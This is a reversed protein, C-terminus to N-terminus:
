ELEKESMSCALSVPASRKNPYAEALKPYVTSVMGVNLMSQMNFGSVLEYLDFFSSSEGGAHYLPYLLNNGIAEHFEVWMGKQEKSESPPARNPRQQNTAIAEDAPSDTM